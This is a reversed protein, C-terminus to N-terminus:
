EAEELTLQKAKPADLVFLPPAQEAEALRREAIAMYESSIEVGVFDRGNRFAMKGTTGSGMFPDLVMDGPNSWTLIHREALLEPFSAPHEFIYDDDSSHGYGAKINWVNPMVGEPKVCRGQALPNFELEDNHIRRRKNASQGAYTNPQTQLNTTRPKGKCLVFMYEWVQYYRNTDPFIMNRKDWIM